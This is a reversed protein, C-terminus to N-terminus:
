KKGEGPSVSVARYVVELGVKKLIAKSPTKAGTLLMYVLNQSVGLKAAYEAVTDSMMRAKLFVPFDRPDIILDPRKQTM